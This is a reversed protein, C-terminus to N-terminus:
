FLTVPPYSITLHRPRRSKFGAVELNVSCVQVQVEKILILSPPFFRDENRPVLHRIPRQWPGGADLLYANRGGRKM